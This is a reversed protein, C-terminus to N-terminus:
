AAGDAAEGTDPREDDTDPGVDVIGATADAQEQSETQDAPDTSDPDHPKSTDRAKAKARMRTLVQEAEVTSLANPDTPYRGIVAAIGRRLQDDDLGLDHQLSVLEVMQTPCMPEAPAAGLVTTSMPNGDPDIEAGLEEPVYSAGLLVDAFIARCLMSTARALLMAQPYSRWVHRSAVGARKADDLTFALETEHPQDARRGALRCVTASMEVIRLHHGDRLVLARMLEASLTVKGDVLHISDLGQM